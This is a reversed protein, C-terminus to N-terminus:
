DGWNILPEDSQLRDMTDAQTEAAAKTCAASAELSDECKPGGCALASLALMAIFFVIFLRTRIKQSM